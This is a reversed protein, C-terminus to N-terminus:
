RLYDVTYGATIKYTYRDTQTSVVGTFQDNNSNSYLLEGICTPFIITSDFSSSLPESTIPYNILRDSYDSSFIQAEMQITTPNVPDFPNVVLYNLGLISVGYVGNGENM